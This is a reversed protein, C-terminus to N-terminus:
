LLDEVCLTVYGNQCGTLHLGMMAIERLAPWAARIDDRNWTCHKRWGRCSEAAFVSPLTLPRQGSLLRHAAEIGERPRVWWVVTSRPALADALAAARLLAAAGLSAVAVVAHESPPTAEFTVPAWLTGECVVCRAGLDPV